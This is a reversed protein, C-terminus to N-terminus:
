SRVTDIQHEEENRRAAVIADTNSEASYRHGGHGRFKIIKNFFDQHNDPFPVQTINLKKIMYSWLPQDRWSDLELSYREWFKLSLALSITLLANRIIALIRTRACRHILMTLTKKGRYGNSRHM